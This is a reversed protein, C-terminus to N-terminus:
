PPETQVVRWHIAPLLVATRASTRKFAAAIFVRDPIKDWTKQLESGVFLKAKRAVMDVQISITHHQESLCLPWMYPFKTFDHGITDLIEAQTEDVVGCFTYGTGTIYIPQVYRGRTMARRGRVGPMSNRAHRAHEEEISPCTVRAGDTSVQVVPSTSSLDWTDKYVEHGLEELGEAGAFKAALECELSAARKLADDGEVNRSAARKLAADREVKWGFFDDEM